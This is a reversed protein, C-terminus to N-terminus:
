GGDAPPQESMGRQGTGNRRLNAIAMDKAQQPMDPNNEIEKIQAEIVDQTPAMENKNGVGEGSDCGGGFLSAALLLAAFLGKKM